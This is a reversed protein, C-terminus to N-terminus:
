HNLAQKEQDQREVISQLDVVLNTANALEQDKLNLLDIMMAVGNRLSSTTLDTELLLLRFERERLSQQWDTINQLVVNNTNLLEITDTPM